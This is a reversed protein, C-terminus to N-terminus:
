DEDVVHALTLKMDNQCRQEPHRLNLSTAQATM